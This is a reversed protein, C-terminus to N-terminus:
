LQNLGRYLVLNKKTLSSMTNMRQVEMKESIIEIYFM